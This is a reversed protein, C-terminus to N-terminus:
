RKGAEALTLDSYKVTILENSADRSRFAVETPWGKSDFATAKEVVGYLGKHDGSTVDAFHGILASGEPLYVATTSDVHITRKGLQEDYLAKQDGSSKKAPSKKATSKKEAM